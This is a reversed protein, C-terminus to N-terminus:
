IGPAREIFTRITKNHMTKILARLRSDILRIDASYKSQSFSVHETSVNYKKSINVFESHWIFM